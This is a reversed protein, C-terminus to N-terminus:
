IREAAGLTESTLLRSAGLIEIGLMRSDEDFDITVAASKFQMDPVSTRTVSGPTIRDVLYVYAADAVRDYTIRVSVWDM